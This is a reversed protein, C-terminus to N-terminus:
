SIWSSVTDGDDVSGAKLVCVVFGAEVGSFNLFSNFLESINVSEEEEEFTVGCSQRRDQPLLQVYELLHKPFMEPLLGDDLDGEPRM